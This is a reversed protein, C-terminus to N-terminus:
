VPVQQWNASTANSITMPNCSGIQRISINSVSFDSAAGSTFLINADGSIRNFLIRNLGRQLLLSVIVTGSGASSGNRIFMTISSTTDILNCEVLFSSVPTIFSKAARSPSGVGTVILSDATGLTINNYGSPTTFIATGINDAGLGSPSPLQIDQNRDAMPWLTGNIKLNLILGSIYDIFSGGSLRTGVYTKAAPERGTGRIITSTHVITGNKYVTWVNGILTSKWLGDGYLGLSTFWASGGVNQYIAENSESRLIYERIAGDETQAVITQAPPLSTNYSKQEWEIVIDGDPNIARNALVGRVGVGDFNLVWRRNASRSSSHLRQRNFLRM